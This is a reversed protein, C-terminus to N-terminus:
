PNKSSEYITTYETVWRDPELRAPDLEVQGLELTIRSGPSAINRFEARRVTGADADFYVSLEMGHMLKPMVDAAWDLGRTQLPLPYGTVRIKWRGLWSSRDVEVKRATQELYKVLADASETPLDLESLKDYDVGIGLASM